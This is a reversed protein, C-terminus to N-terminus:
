LEDLLGELMAPVDPNLTAQDINLGYVIDCGLVLDNVNL